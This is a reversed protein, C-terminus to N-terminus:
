GAREEDKDGQRAEGDEKGGPELRAAKVKKVPPRGTQEDNCEIKGYESVQMQHQWERQGRHSPDSADGGARLQPAGPNPRSRSPELPWSRKASKGAPRSGRGAAAGRQQCPRTPAVMGGWGKDEHKRSSRAGWAKLGRGPKSTPRRQRAVWAPMRRPPSRCRVTATRGAQTAPAVGVPHAEPCARRPRPISHTPWLAAACPSAPPAPWASPAQGWPEPGVPRRSPRRSSPRWPCSIVRRPSITWRAPWRTVIGPAPRRRRPGTAARR